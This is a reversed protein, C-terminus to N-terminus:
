GWSIAGDAATCQFMSNAQFLFVKCGPSCHLYAATARAPSFFFFVQQEFGAADVAYQDQTIIDRYAAM